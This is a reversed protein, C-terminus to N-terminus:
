GHGQTNAPTLVVIDAVDKGYHNAIQALIDIRITNVDESYLWRTVTGPHKGTYATLKEILAADKRALKNIAPDLQVSSATAIDNTNM